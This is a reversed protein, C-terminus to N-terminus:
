NAPYLLEVDPQYTKFRATDRTILPINLYSAHAGIYFDPMSSTKSGKNKRYRKFTRSVNFAASLPIDLIEINLEALTNQLDECSEFNFAIESFIITNIVLNYKVSLKYLMKSSWEYWHEDDNFIDLLVCSDVLLNSKKIM